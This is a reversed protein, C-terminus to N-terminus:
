VTFKTTDVDDATKRMAAVGWRGYVNETLDLTSHGLAAQVFSPDVGNERMIRTFTARFSHLPKRPRGDEGAKPIEAKTLADDVLRHLTRVDVRGGTRPAPFVPGEDHVGKAKVWAELVSVAAPVLYVTRPERDKPAQLGDVPDWTARVRVIKATIDDDPWDLAVAEGVRLGTTVLFRCLTVYTIDYDLKTMQAWLKALEM